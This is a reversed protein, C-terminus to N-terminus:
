QRNITEFPNSVIMSRGVIAVIDKQTWILSGHKEAMQRVEHESKM